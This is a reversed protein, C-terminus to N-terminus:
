LAPGLSRRGAQNSVVWEMIVECGPTAQIEDLSGLHGSAYIQQTSTLSVQPRSLDLPVQTLSVFNSAVFLAVLDSALAGILPCSGRPFNETDAPELYDFHGGDYAAGYKPAAVGAFLSLDTLNEESATRTWMLFKPVTLSVLENLREFYFWYQGGLAVLAVVDPVRSAIYTAMLAGNSHGAVAFERRKSVWRSQSWGNRVWELDRQADLDAGIPNSSGAHRPVAVVYGCRALTSPLRRWKRYSVGTPYSFVEAGHLFLVIPWRTGCLKLIPPAGFPAVARAIDTEPVPEGAYRHIPYYIMMTRHVGAVGPVDEAGWAVPHAVDPIWSVDGNDGPSRPCTEFFRDFFSSCGSLAAMAPTLALTALVRRRAILPTDRKTGAMGREALARVASTQPVEM